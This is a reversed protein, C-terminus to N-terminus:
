GAGGQGPAVQAADVTVNAGDMRKMAFTYSPRLNCNFAFNSLLEDHKLKL